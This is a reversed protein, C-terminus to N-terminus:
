FARSHRGRCEAHAAHEEVASGWGYESCLADLLLVRLAMSILGRMALWCNFPGLTAGEADQLLLGKGQM